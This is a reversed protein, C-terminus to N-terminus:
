KISFDFRDEYLLGHVIIVILFGRIYYISETTLLELILLSMLALLWHHWHIDLYNIHYETHTGQEIKVGFYLLIYIIGIISGIIFQKVNLTDM